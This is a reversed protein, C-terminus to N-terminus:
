NVPNLLELEAAGFFVQVAEPLRDASTVGRLREQAANPVALLYDCFRIQRLQKEVEVLEAPEMALTESLNPQQGQFKLSGNRFAGRLEWHLPFEPNPGWERYLRDTLAHANAHARQAIAEYPCM